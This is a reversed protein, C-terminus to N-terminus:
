PENSGAAEGLSQRGMNSGVRRRGGGRYRDREEQCAQGLIAAQARASGEGVEQHALELPAALAPAGALPIGPHTSIVHCGAGPSV